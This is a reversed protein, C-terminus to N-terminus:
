QASRAGLQVCPTQLLRKAERIGTSMAGDATSARGSFNTAEGAFLIRGGVPDALLARDDGKTKMVTASYSGRSFPDNLWNTVAVEEPKLARRGYVQRLVDMAEERVQQPKKGDLSRAM